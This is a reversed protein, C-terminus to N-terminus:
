GRAAVLVAGLAAVAVAAAAHAARAAVRAAVLGLLRAVTGRHDLLDDEDVAAGLHDLTAAAEAEGRERDDAVLLAVDADAVALRVLHGIGDLFAGLMRLLAQHVYFQLAVCNGVVDEALEVADDDDDPAEGLVVGGAAEFYWHETLGKDLPSIGAPIKIQKGDNGTITIGGVPVNVLVKSM